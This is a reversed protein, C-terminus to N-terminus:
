VFVTEPHNFERAVAQMAAADLTEADLVVALPNGVFRRDTFVDLTAFRRQMSIEEYGKRSLCGARSRWNPRRTSWCCKARGPRLPAAFCGMSRPHRWPWRM